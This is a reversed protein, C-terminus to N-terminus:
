PFEHESSVEDSIWQGPSSTKRSRSPSRAWESAFPSIKTQIPFMGIMTMTGDMWITLITTTLTMIAMMVIRMKRRSSSEPVMRM